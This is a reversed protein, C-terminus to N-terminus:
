LFISVSRQVFPLVWCFFLPSTHASNTYLNQSVTLFFQWIPSSFLLWPLSFVRFPNFSFTPPTMASMLNNQDHVFGGNFFFVVRLVLTPFFLVHCWGHIPRYDQRGMWEAFKVRVLCQFCICILPHKMTYSFCLLFTCLESPLPSHISVHGNPKPFM